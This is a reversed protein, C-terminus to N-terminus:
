ASEIIIDCKKHENLKVRYEYNHQHQDIKLSPEHLEEKWNSAALESIHKEYVHKLGIQDISQMITFDPGHNGEIFEVENKNTVSVDWGIHRIYPMQQASEKVAKLVKDWHPIQFGKIAKKSDPHHTLEALDERIAHSVIEGTEVDILATIGNGYVNDIVQGVRGLRIRACTVLAEDDITLLTNIRITNLTDPNFEAISSHQKVIEEVLYDNNKFNEFLESVNNNVEFIGAGRGHLSAVPKAFFRPHKITFDKFEELTAESMDLYDRNVYKTYTKNFLPKSKKYKIYEKVVCTNILHIWYPYTVFNGAAKITKDYLKYSFYEKTTFRMPEFIYQWQIFMALLESNTHNLGSMKYYKSKFKTAGKKIKEYRKKSVSKGFKIQSIIEHKNELKDFLMTESVFNDKLQTFEEPIDMKLLDCIHNVRFLPTNGVAKPMGEYLRQDFYTDPSINLPAFVYRWEIFMELLKLDTHQIGVLDYYKSKFEIARKKIKEYRAKPFPKRIEIQAIIEQNNYLNNFLQTESVHWESFRILKKPICIELLKCVDEVLYIPCNGVARIKGNQIKVRKRGGYYIEKKIKRAIGRLKKM